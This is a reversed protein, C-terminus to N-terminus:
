IEPFPMENPFSPIRLYSPNKTQFADFLLKFVTSQFALSKFHTLVKASPATTAPANFPVNGFSKGTAVLATNPTTFVPADILLLAPTTFM